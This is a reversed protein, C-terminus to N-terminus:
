YYLTLLRNIEKRGRYCFQVMVKTKQAAVTVNTADHRSSIKLPVLSCPDWKKAKTKTLKTTLKPHTKTIKAKKQSPTKRVKGYARRACDQYPSHISFLGKPDKYSFSYISFLEQPDQYSSHISSLEKSTAYQWVQHPSHISSFDRQHWIPHTKFKKTPWNLIM